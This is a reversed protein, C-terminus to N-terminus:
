LGTLPARHKEPTPDYRRHIVETARLRRHGETGAKITQHHPPTVKIRDTARICRTIARPLTTRSHHLDRATARITDVEAAETTDKMQCPSTRSTCSLASPFRASSVRAIAPNQPISGSYTLGSFYSKALSRVNFACSPNSTRWTLRGKRILSPQADLTSPDPPRHDLPSFHSRPSGEDNPWLDMHSWPIVSPVLVLLAACRPASRAQAHASDLWSICGVTPGPLRSIPHFSSSNPFRHIHRQSYASGGKWAHLQM